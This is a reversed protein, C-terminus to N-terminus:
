LLNYEIRARQLSLKLSLSEISNDITSEPFVIENGKFILTFAENRIKNPNEWQTTHDNHNIFYIRGNQDSKEEWGRPLEIKQKDFEFQFSISKGFIDQFFQHILGKPFETFEREQLLIDNEYFYFTNEQVDFRITEIVKNNEMDLIFKIGDGQRAKKVITFQKMFIPNEQFTFNQADVFIEVIHFLAETFHEDCFELCNLIDFFHLNSPAFCQSKECKQEKIQKCQFSFEAERNRKRSKNKSPLHFGNYDDDADAILYGSKWTLIAINKLSPIETISEIQKLDSECIQPVFLRADQYNHISDYCYKLDEPDSTIALMQVDHQENLMQLVFTTNKQKCVQLRAKYIGFFYNLLYIIVNNTHQSNKFNQLTQVMLDFKSKDEDKNEDEPENFKIFIDKSKPLLQILNSIDEKKSFNFDVINFKQWSYLQELSNQLIHLVAELKNGFLSMFVYFRQWKKLSKSHMIEGIMLTLQFTPSQFEYSKCDEFTGKKRFGGENLDSIVTEKFSEIVAITERHLSESSDINIYKPNFNYVISNAAADFKAVVILNRKHFPDFVVNFVHGPVICEGVYQSYGFEEAAAMTYHSYCACLCQNTEILSIIFNRAKDTYPCQINASSSDLKKYLLYYQVHSVFYVAQLIPNQPFKEKANVDITQLVQMEQVWRNM